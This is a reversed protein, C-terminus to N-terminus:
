QSDKLDIVTNMIASGRVPDNFIRQDVVLDKIVPTKFKIVDGLSKSEYLEEAVRYESFQNYSELTKQYTMMKVYDKVEGAKNTISFKVVKLIEVKPVTFIM